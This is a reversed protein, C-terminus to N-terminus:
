GRMHLSEFVQALVCLPAASVSHHIMSRPSSLFTPWTLIVTDDFETRNPGCRGDIAAPEM